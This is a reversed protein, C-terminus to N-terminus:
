IPQLAKYPPPPPPPFNIITHRQRANTGTNGKFPNARVNKKSHTCHNQQQSIPSSSDDYSVNVLTYRKKTSLAAPIYLATYAIRELESKRLGRKKQESTRKPKAFYRRIRVNKTV